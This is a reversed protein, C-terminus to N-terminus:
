CAAIHGEDFKAVTSYTSTGQFKINNGDQIVRKQNWWKWMASLQPQIINFIYFQFSVPIWLSFMWDYIRRSGSWSSHAPEFWDFAFDDSLWHIQYGTHTLQVYEIFQMPLLRHVTCIILRFINTSALCSFFVCVCMPLLTLLLLMAMM